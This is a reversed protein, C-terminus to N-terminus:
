ASCLSTLGRATDDGEADSRQDARAQAARKGLSAVASGGDWSSRYAFATANTRPQKQDFRRPNPQSRARGFADINSDRLVTGRATFANVVIIRPTLVFGEVAASVKRHVPRM